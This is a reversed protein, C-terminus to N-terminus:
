QLTYLYAAVDKLDGPAVNLKPMATKPDVAPPDSIWRMLDEPTNSLVGALYVRSAVRELSPGVNADPGDVGPIRHCAVCGYKQIAARGRKPDGGTAAAAKGERERQSREAWGAAVAGASFLVFSVLAFNRM